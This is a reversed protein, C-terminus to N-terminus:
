DRWRRVRALWRAREAEQRALVDDLSEPILAELRTRLLDVIVRQSLAETEWAAHHGRGGKYRGDTKLIPRQGRRILDAIQEPHHGLAGM